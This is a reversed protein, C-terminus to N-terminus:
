LKVRKLFKELAKNFEEPNELNSTHGANSIIKSDCNQMLSKM